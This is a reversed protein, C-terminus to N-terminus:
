YESVEVPVWIFCWGESSDNVLRLAYESNEDLSDFDPYIDNISVKIKEIEQLHEDLSTNIAEIKQDALTAKDNLETTVGKLSVIDEEDANLRINTDAIKSLVKDITGQFQTLVEQTHELSDQIKSILGVKAKDNNTYNNDTHVYEPDDVIGKDLIFQYVFNAIEDAKEDVYKTLAEERLLAIDQSNGSAKNSAKFILKDKNADVEDVNLLEKEDYKIELVKRSIRKFEDKVDADLKSINKKVLDVLDEQKTIDGKLKGWFTVYQTVDDEIDASLKTDKVKIM